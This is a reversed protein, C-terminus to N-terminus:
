IIEGKGVGYHATFRALTKDNPEVGGTWSYRDKIDWDGWEQFRVNFEMKGVEAWPVSKHDFVMEATELHNYNSM